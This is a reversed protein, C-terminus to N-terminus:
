PLNEAAIIRIRRDLTARVHFRTAGDDHRALCTTQEGPKLEAAACTLSRVEWGLPRKLEVLWLGLGIQLDNITLTFDDEGLVFRQGSRLAKAELARGRSTLSCATTSGPRRLRETPCDITAGPDLTLQRAIRLLARETLIRDAASGEPAIMKFHHVAWGGNFPVLKILAEGEAKEFEVTMRVIPLGDGPDSEQSSWAVERVAGFGRHLDDLVQDLLALDVSEQFGPSASDRIEGAARRNFRELLERVVPELVKRTPDPPAEAAVRASVIEVDAGGSTKIVYSLTEGAATISLCHLEGVAEPVGGQGCHAFMMEIETQQPVIDTLLYEAAFITDPLVALKRLTWTDGELCLRMELRGLGEEFRVAYRRLSCGDTESETEYLLVRQPPGLIRNQAEVIPGVTELPTEERIDAAFYSQLRPWDGAEYADLAAESLEVLPGSAAGSPLAQAGLAGATAFLVAMALIDRLM